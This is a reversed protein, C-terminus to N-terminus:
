IRQVSIHGVASNIKIQNTYDDPTSISGFCVSGDRDTSQTAYLNINASKATSWQISANDLVPVYIEVAGSETHIYSKGNVSNYHIEISATGRDLSSFDIAGRLGDVTTQGSRSRIVLDCKATCDIDIKGNDTTIKANTRLDPLTVNGRKTEIQIPGGVKALSVNGNGQVIDVEGLVNQIDINGQDGKLILDGSINKAQINCSQTVADISGFVSDFELLGAGLEMILDGYVNGFRIHSNAVNELFLEKATGDAGINRLNIKGLGDTISIHVNNTLNINSVVDGSLKAISVDRAVKCSRLHVKGTDAQISLSGLQTVRSSLKTQADDSFTCPDGVYVDGGRTVIQVDKASLIAPHVYVAFTMGRDFILGDPEVMEIVAISQGDETIVKPALLAPVDVDGRVFGTLERNAIVNIDMNDEFLLSEDDSVVFVDFRGTQFRIIDANAFTDLSGDISTRQEDDLHIYHYGFISFSPFLILAGMGLILVGLVVFLIIALIRFLGSIPGM